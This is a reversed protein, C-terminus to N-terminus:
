SIQRCSFPKGGAIAASGPLAAPSLSSLVFTGNGFHVSASPDEEPGGSHGAQQAPALTRADQSARATGGLTADCPANAKTDTVSARVTATGGPGTTGAEACNGACSSSGVGSLTGAPSGSSSRWSIADM